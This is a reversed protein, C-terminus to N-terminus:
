HIILAVFASAAFLVAIVITSIFVFREGGRRTHAPSSLNDSGGFASGLDADSQQLLVLTILILSFIIQIYPLATAISRMPMVIACRENKAIM